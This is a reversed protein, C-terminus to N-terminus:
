RNPFLDVHGYRSQSITKSAMAKQKSKTNLEVISKEESDILIRKVHETETPKQLIRSEVKRLSLERTITWIRPTEHTTNTRVLYLGVRTETTDM